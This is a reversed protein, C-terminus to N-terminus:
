DYANPDRKRVAKSKAEEAAAVATHKTPTLDITLRGPGEVKQALPTRDARAYVERLRDHSRDQFTIWRVVVKYEGRPIGEGEKGPVDFSGDPHVNAPFSEGPVTPNAEYLDLRVWDGEALRIPQGDLTLTGAVPVVGGGCGPLAILLAVLTTARTRVHRM